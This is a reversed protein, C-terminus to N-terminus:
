KRWFWFIDNSPGDFWSLMAIQFKDWIGNLGGWMSGPDAHADSPAISLIVTVIVAAICIEFLRLLKEESRM